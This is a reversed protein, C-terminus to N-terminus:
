EQGLESNAHNQNHIRKPVGAPQTDSDACNNSGKENQLRETPEQDNDSPEASSSASSSPRLGM